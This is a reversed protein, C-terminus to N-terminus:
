MMFVIIHAQSAVEIECIELLINKMYIVYINCIYKYLIDISFFISSIRFYFMQFFFDKVCFFRNCFNYPKLLHM